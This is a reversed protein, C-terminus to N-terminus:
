DHKCWFGSVTTKIRRDRIAALNVLHIGISYRYNASDCLNFSEVIWKGPKHLDPLTVIEGLKPLISHHFNQRKNDLMKIM